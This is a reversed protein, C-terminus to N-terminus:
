GEIEDSKRSSDGDFKKQGSSFAKFRLVEFWTWSGGGPKGFETGFMAKIRM